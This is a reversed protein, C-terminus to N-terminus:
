SPQSGAALKQIAKEVIQMVKQRSEYEHSALILSYKPRTFAVYALRRQEDSYYKPLKRNLYDYYRCAAEGKQLKLDESCFSIDQISLYPIYDADARLPDPFKKSTTHWPALGKNAGTDIGGAVLEPIAVVDWQLGKAAHITLITVKGPIQVEGDLVEVLASDDGEKEQGVNEQAEVEDIWSLFGALKRGTDAACYDASLQSFINIASRIKAQGEIRSAILIPLQLLEVSKQIMIPIQLNRNEKLKAVCTAIYNIREIGASTISAKAAAYIAANEKCNTRFENDARNQKSDESNLEAKFIAFVDMLNAHQSKKDPSEAAMKQKVLRRLDAFANIDAAGLAFYNFLYVLSDNCTDSVSLKLLSRIARIEPMTIVPTGGVIEYELGAAKLAAAVDEKHKNARVLVAGTPATSDSNAFRKKTIVAFDKAIQAAMAQYSESRLHRHVHIVNGNIAKPQAKLIPLELAAKGAPVIPEDIWPRGIEAIENFDEYLLHPSVEQAFGQTIRNAVRLVSRPNRFSTYLTLQHNKAVNFQKVFDVLANASAGRWGYIAQNPDGVACVSEAGKFAQSLFLAQNVSTDQYEDLLILKYQERLKKRSGTCSTFDTNGM